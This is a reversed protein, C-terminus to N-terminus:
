NAALNWRRTPFWKRTWLFGCSRSAPSLGAASSKMLASSSLFSLIPWRRPSREWATWHLRFGAHGLFSLSFVGGLPHQHWLPTPSELLNWPNELINRPWHHFMWCLPDKTHTDPQGALTRPAKIDAGECFMQHQNKRKRKEKKWGSEQSTRSHSRQNIWVGESYVRLLLINQM